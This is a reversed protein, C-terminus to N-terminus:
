LAGRLGSLAKLTPALDGPMESEFTLREGSRPHNFALTRAHLALRPTPPVGPPLDRQKETGYLPDGVVPLGHEALHVRIQHRRGTHLTCALLSHTGFSEEVSIDTRAEKGGTSVVRQRDVKGPVADLHGDLTFGAPETVVGSVLALYIKLVSRERFQNQLQDLVEDTRAVVLVGSTERDLRHVIGPREVGRSLALPGYKANLEDALTPDGAMRDAAHTLLGAPKVVVLLDEDEYIVAVRPPPVELEVTIEAGKQVRGNSRTIVKGGIRVAGRRVLKQAQSRSVSDILADLAHDLREGSLRKTVTYKLRQLPM